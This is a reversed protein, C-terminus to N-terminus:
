EGIGVVLATLDDAQHLSGAQSDLSEGLRHMAQDLTGHGLARLAHAYPNEFLAAAAESLRDAGGHPIIAPPDALHAAAAALSREASSPSTAERFALEFGDSYLLLRDGPELRLKTLEYEEEPFVGLLAGDPEITRVERGDNRLLLPFPHGARAMHLELTKENLVGYVATATRVKGGQHAVLDHNLRAMSENPPVIRYHQPLTRDIEKTLLSRKIYVTMLAAPVGHGVADALFFGVHDEDLRAIDYIDGSVYSAPRYLVRFDLRGTRPPTVPLFDRQLQAALRLEEDMKGIQSCLGGESASLLDLQARLLRLTGAQHFLAAAVSALAFPPADPPAALVGEQVTSALPQLEGHRSLLVPVHRDQLIAALEYLEPPADGLRARTAADLVIWALGTSALWHGSALAESVTLHRLAPRQEAPWASLAADIVGADDDLDFRIATLTPESM